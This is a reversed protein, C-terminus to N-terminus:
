TLNSSFHLYLLFWCFFPSSLLSCYSSSLSGSYLSSASVFSPSYSSSLTAFSYFLLSFFTLISYLVLLHHYCCIVLVGFILQLFFFWRSPSASAISTCTSLLYCVKAGRSYELYWFKVHRNGVTVFYGGSEAFSVAKVKSSVKNSALKLGARWEWVNVIM